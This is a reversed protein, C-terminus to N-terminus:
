AFAYQANLVEKLNLPGPEVADPLRHSNHITLDATASALVEALVDHTEYMEVFQERIIRNFRVAYPALCGFSDHVTAVQTINASICANATLMLHAADLAHVFNPAVGNAAKDKNIEKKDGTALTIRVRVDSLWLQVRKTIVEHYRNCWPLGTPTVWNLAKGEHALARACKQLFGMAQAPKQVVTEIGAYVHKALYQAAPSTADPHKKGAFYSFPHEPLKGSLVDFELPTMLDEDQQQAMGFRKSSYAYTMVNRKVVKRTIGYDLALKALEEGNTADEEIRTTTLDAVRQYVDQVENSPTLNVYQGEAARTMACLHQLGSCSGDFSVPMRTVYSPGASLARVLESCAAVFLFPKDAVTWAGEQTPGIFGPAVKPATAVRRIMDLYKDTWQVREDYPRKSVKGFDGCNAVHVKLWYLGEDGVPAGDAFLFMGRVRDDRQFNFHPLAYVRGRWDANMPTWFRDHQAMLDATRLDESMLVRESVLGRNGEEVKGARSKWLRRAPEDMDEWACPKPPEALPDLSPLGKVAVRNEYAWRVLDLIPKNITWAVNHLGNLADLFPQMQGSRIASKVAATTEKSRARLLTDRVRAREDDYGGHAWGTWPLPPRVMPLFVPNRIITQAIAEDAMDHAHDSLTPRQNGARDEVLTFVEPLAELLRAYMWHGAHLVDEKEWTKTQFGARTAISRAAQRRYKLNGHRRRVAKEIRGALTGDHQLLGAAWCEGAIASGLSLCTQLYTQGRAISHISTQLACLAVVEPELNKLVLLLQRDKALGHTTESFKLTIHAALEGIYTRTIEMGQASAGWGGQDRVARANQKEFRELTREQSETDLDVLMLPERDPATEMLPAGRLHSHAQSPALGNYDNALM